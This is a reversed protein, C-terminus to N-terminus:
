AGSEDTTAPSYDPQDKIKDLLGEVTDATLTMEYGDREQQPTLMVIGCRTAYPIGADSRWLYWGSIGLDERSPEGVADPTVETSGM